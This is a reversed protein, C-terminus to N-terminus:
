GEGTYGPGMLIFDDLWLKGFIPCQPAPCPQRRLSIQIATTSAGTTFDITIAQWGKTSEPLAGTQGFLKNDSADIVTVNPLGGSVLGDTRVAFHLRYSTKPSVLVLQSIVEGAANTSGNFDVRLSTHGAKPNSNDLSLTLVKDSGATRWNFGPENLDIEEEFGPNVILSVDPNFPHEFGWLSEATQFEKAAILEGVYARRELVTGSGGNALASAAAHVQGHKKFYEGLAKFAEPTDPGLAVLVRKVDAGSKVESGSAQWALDIISPLLKPNSNGARRLEKFGEDTRAARVLMNGLQWRPQAYYPALKVATTASAIAGAPDGALEQGRALQLRLVYDDPRLSVATRYQSNAAARDNSVELLAGLLVHTQPDGANLRAAKIVRPLDNASTVKTTLLAAYGTRASHWALFALLLLVSFIKWKDNKM